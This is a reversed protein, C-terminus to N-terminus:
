ACTLACTIHMDSCMDTFVGPEEFPNHSPMPLLYVNAQSEHVLPEGLAYALPTAYSSGAFDSPELEYRPRKHTPKSAAMVLARLGPPVPLPFRLKPGM